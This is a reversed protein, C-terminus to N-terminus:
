QARVSELNGNIHDPWLQRVCDPCLLQCLVCGFDIVEDLLEYILVFNVRISRSTLYIGCLPSADGRKPSCEM